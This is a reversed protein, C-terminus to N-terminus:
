TQGAHVNYDCGAVKLLMQLFGPVVIPGHCRSAPTEEHRYPRNSIALLNRADDDDTCTTSRLYIHHVVVGCVNTSGFIEM